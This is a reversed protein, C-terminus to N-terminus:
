SKEAKFEKSFEKLYKEYSSNTGFITDWISFFSSYNGVSTLHHYAHYGYGTAFPVFRFPSWSFEYGCHGENSEYGRAMFWGIVTTMHMRKGLLIVGVGSPLINGFTLELPHAFAAACFLTPNYKHHIKHM